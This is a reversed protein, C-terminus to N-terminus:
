IKKTVSLSLCTDTISFKNLVFAELIDLCWIFCFGRNRNNKFWKIKNWLYQGHEILYKYMVRVDEYDCKHIRTPYSQKLYFCNNPQHFIVHYSHIPTLSISNSHAFLEIIRDYEKTDMHHIDNTLTANMSSALRENENMSLVINNITNKINKIDENNRDPIVISQSGIIDLVKQKKNMIQNSSTCSENIKNTNDMNNANNINNANNTNNIEVPENKKQNEGFKAGFKRKLEHINKIEDEIRTNINTYSNFSDQRLIEYSRKHNNIVGLEKAYENPTLKLWFCENMVNYMSLKEKTNIANTTNTINTTNTANIVNKENFVLTPVLDPNKNHRFM